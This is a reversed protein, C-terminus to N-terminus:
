VRSPRAPFVHRLFCSPTPGRPGAGLFNPDNQQARGSLRLAVGSEQIVPLLAGYLLTRGAGRISRRPEAGAIDVRLLRPRGREQPLDRQDYGLPARLPPSSVVERVYGHVNYSATANTVYPSDLGNVSLWSQLAAMKDGAERLYALNDKAASAYAGTVGNAAADSEAKTRSQAIVDIVHQIAAPTLSTCPDPGGDQALVAPVSLLVGLLIAVFRKAICM